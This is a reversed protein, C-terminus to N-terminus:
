AAAARSAATGLSERLTFYEVSIAYRLLERLPGPKGAHERLVDADVTEGIGEVTEALVIRAATALDGSVLLGARDGTARVMARWNASSFPTQENQQFLEALRKAAKYPLAKKLKAAQEGTASQAGARWRAHRPHFAKLVSSFLQAFEKPPVTAALIYEPRTLELARGLRFRVESIPAATALRQGIVVATPPTVVLAVDDFGPDWNVFLNTRKNGLAKGTQGYIKGIDQESIPSVKDQASVGFTELSTTGLGPVGEWIASFVEAMVRAGPHALYRARDDEAISGTYADDPKLVATPHQALFKRDKKGALGLVALLEYCCRAWDTRGQQDYGRALTRLSDARTVDAVVLMRHNELAAAAHEARDGYLAVLAERASTREREFEVAHELAAIAGAPDSERRSLGLQEWLEARRERGGAKESPAPLNPLTRGLLADVESARDARAYAACLNRLVEEDFPDEEVSRELLEAAKDFEGQEFLLAAAERRRTARDRPDTTVEAIKRATETAELVAGAARQVELTKQLLPVHQETLPSAAAIAAEFAGRAASPDELAVFLDGLQECLLAKEAREPCSDAVRRLYGAADRKEGRELALDALARLTPHHDPAFRLAAEYLAAAREPHKQRIEAQAAHALAHAVEEPYASADPHDAIGEFHVAADRWKRAQFRNEGLALRILLQGPVVRDAEVLQKYGEDVRGLKDYVEALRHYLRATQEPQGRLRRIAQYLRREAQEWQQEKYFIDAMTIVAPLHDPALELAEDLCAVAQAADGPREWLARGLDTLVAAKEGPSEVLELQRQYLKRAETLQGEGEALSALAHLAEASTPYADLARQFCDRARSTDGMQDRCVAGAELLAALGAPTGAQGEAERLRVDAYAAFDNEQLHFRAMAALADPYGPMLALAADISQRAGPADGLQNGKLGAIELHLDAIRAAPAKEKTLIDIRQTLVRLAEHLLGASRLNRLLSTTSEDDSLAEAGLSRLCTAAADPNSLKEELIKARRRILDSREDGTALEARRELVSELPEWRGNAQLLRDMAALVEPDRPASSLIADYTEMALDPSALEREYIEAMRGRLTRVAAADTVLDVQEQLATVAKHWLGVRAYLRSLADYAEAAERVVEPHDFGREDEDIGSVYRELTDIAEYPRDLRKEYLEALEFAKGRRESYPATEIAGTARKELIGALDSWREQARYVQELRDLAPGDDPAMILIAQYREEARETQNLEDRIRAVDHNLAVAQERTVGEAAARLYIECVDDWREAARAIRDLEGRVTADQLDLRFARELAGLARDLDHAGREWIDAISLLNRHRAAADPAPLHEYAQALEEWASDPGRAGPPRVSVPARPPTAPPSAPPTASLEEIEDVLDLEEDSVEDGVSATDPVQLMITKDPNSGGVLPAPTPTKQAAPSSEYGGILGALRWLNAVIGENEPALRFANLYARFARVRDRVKEEVLAAAQQAIEVKEDTSGARAFLQSQVGLADEWRGTREALRLIEKQTEATTPDLAFSRILEDMAGSPDKLRDERVSARLRLLEVREGVSPRGRAVRAYVDLLGAWDNTEVALRELEPLLGEGAPQHPLADRLVIFARAPQRLREECLGAVKLAVEVREAPDESRAREGAYVQILDEWLGHREAVSEVRGLATDDANEQYARRYWEFALRPESLSKECTEAIEFMLRRREGPDKAQALLKENTFILREADGAGAYLPALAHLAQANEPDLEIVREFATLAKAVDKLRDRWLLGIELARSARAAPDETLFLQREAVTVVRAWDQKAEAVRRLRDHAEVNRPDLETILQELARITEDSNRLEEEFIRARELALAVGVDPDAALPIRRELVSVLPRWDGKAAYTATLAELAEADAPLVRLLDEWARQARAEQQLPGGTLRALERLCEAQTAADGNARDIQAELVRALDEPRELQQYAEALSALATRDAPSLKVLQEWYAAARDVDGLGHHLLEAIRRTLQVKEENTGVYRLHYELTQVLRPRDESRELISELRALADRDGPVLKLIETAAWSGEALDGLREDYLPLLRRLINLKEQKATSLDHQERLLKALEDWKEGREYSDLLARLAVVDRADITLIERYVEAARSADQLKETLIRALRRLVEVRQAPESAGQAERELVAAMRDWQKSKQLIRKQAERARDYGPAIEEMRAWAALARDHDALRGEAIVAIEELRSLLEDAPAGAGRATELGFELLDALEKWDGRQRFHEAYAQLADANTPDIQLIAHLYVAGQDRDGLRDRYLSALETLITLRFAPDSAVELQRERLDALKAYDQTRQYLQALHQSAPGGPPEIAVIEEYVRLAETANGLDGEALQARKFLFDMREEPTEAAAVRERYYRDLEPFREATYLVREMLESSDVHGPHAALAKRLAALANELDSAEHRRRAVQHYLAAARERGDDAPWQPNAYVSALAEIAKDDRPRLRVVENLRQAAGDLDGMRELVRGLGLMLDARRKVDPTAGLELDYLRVANPYDGLARYIKRASEIAKLSEADVAGQRGPTALLREVKAFHSSWLQGMEAQLDAIRAPEKTRAIAAAEMELMTMYEPTRGQERYMDKLRKTAKLHSPDRDVAHALDAEAGSVDSLYDVRVEAALYFLEAAKAPESIAQARTEYLTVLKDFKGAERYAKRLALFADNDAPDRNLAHEYERVTPM